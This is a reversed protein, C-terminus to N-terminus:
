AKNKRPITLTLWLKMTCTDVSSSFTVSGADLQTRILTGVVTGKQTGSWDLFINKWDELTLVLNKEMVEPYDLETKKAM